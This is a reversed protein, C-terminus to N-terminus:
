QTIYVKVAYAMVNHVALQHYNGRKRHNKEANESDKRGIRQHTDYNLQFMVCRKEETGKIFLAHQNIFFFRFTVAIHYVM